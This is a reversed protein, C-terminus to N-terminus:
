PQLRPGAVDIQLTTGGAYTGSSKYKVRWLPGIIGDQATNAAMSGDTPTVGTAEPTLSSLNYIKIASATTFHFQAVDIWTAGQDLSTQVYADVSAGSSGYVFNAQITVNTPQSARLQQVASVQPTGIASTITLAPLLTAALVSSLPAAAFLAAALIASLLRKM